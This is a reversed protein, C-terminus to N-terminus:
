YLLEGKGENEVSAAAELVFKDRGRVHFLQAIRGNIRTKRWKVCNFFATM